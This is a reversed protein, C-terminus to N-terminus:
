GSKSGSPGEDLQASHASSIHSELREHFRGLRENMRDLQENIRDLRANARDLGAITEGVREVFRDLTRTGAASATCTRTTTRANM